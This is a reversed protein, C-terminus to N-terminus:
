PRERGLGGPAGAELVKQVGDQRGDKAVHALERVLGAIRLASEQIVTAAKMVGPDLDHRAQLIQARGLLSTLPNNIKHSLNGIADLAEVFGELRQREQQEARRATVDMLFLLDGEGMSLHRRTVWLVNPGNESSREVELEAGAELGALFEPVPCATLACVTTGLLAAAAHNCRQVHARRDLLVIGAGLAELVGEVHGHIEDFSCLAALEVMTGEELDLWPARPEDGSPPSVTERRKSPQAAM